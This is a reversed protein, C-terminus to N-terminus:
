APMSFDLMGNQLLKLFGEKVGSLIKDDAGAQALQKLIVDSSNHGDVHQFLPAFGDSLEMTQFDVTPDCRSFQNIRARAFFIRRNENELVRRRQARGPPNQALHSWLETDAVPCLLRKMDAYPQPVIVAAVHAALKIPKDSWDAGFEAPDTAEYSNDLVQKKLSSAIMAMSLEAELIAISTTQEKAREFTYALLLERLRTGFLISRELMNARVMESDILDKLIDRGGDLSCVLSFSLPFARCIHTLIFGRRMKADIELADPRIAQFDALEEVGLDYPSLAQTADKCFHARLSRDFLLDFLAREQEQFSM